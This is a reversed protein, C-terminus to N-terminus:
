RRQTVSHGWPAVAPCWPDVLAAQRLPDGLWAEGVPAGVQLGGSVIGAKSWDSLEAM